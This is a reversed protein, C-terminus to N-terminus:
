SLDIRSFKNKPCDPFGFLQEQTFKYEWLEFPIGNETGTEVCRLSTSLEKYLKHAITSKGIGRAGTILVRATQM